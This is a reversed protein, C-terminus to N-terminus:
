VVADAWHPLQLLLKPDSIPSPRFGLSRHFGAACGNIARALLERAGLLRQTPRNRRLAGAVEAMAFPALRFAPM